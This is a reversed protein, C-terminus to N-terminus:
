QGGNACRLSTQRMVFTYELFLVTELLLAYGAPRIASGAEFSRCKDGVRDHVM